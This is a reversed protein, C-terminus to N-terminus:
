NLNGSKSGDRAVRARFLNATRRTNAKVRIAKPVACEPAVVFGTWYRPSTLDCQTGCHRCLMPRRNM